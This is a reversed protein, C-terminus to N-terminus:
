RRYGIRESRRKRRDLAVDHPSTPLAVQRFGDLAALAALDRRLRTFQQVAQRRRPWVGDLYAAWRKSGLPSVTSPALVKTRHGAKTEQRLEIPSGTRDGRSSM